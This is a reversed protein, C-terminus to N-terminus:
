RGERGTSNEENNTQLVKFVSISCLQACKVLYSKSEFLNPPTAHYRTDTPHVSGRQIKSWAVLLYM